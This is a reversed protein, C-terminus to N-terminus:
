TSGSTLQAAITRIIRRRAKARQALYKEEGSRELWDMARQVAHRTTTEDRCEALLLLQVKQVNDAVYVGFGPTVVTADAFGLLDTAQKETVGKHCAILHM